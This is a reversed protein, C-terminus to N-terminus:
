KNAPASINVDVSTKSGGGGFIKGRFVYLAGLIVLVFIAVIAVVGTSGASENDAM